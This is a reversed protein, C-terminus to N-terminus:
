LAFMHTAFLIISLRTRRIIQRHPHEPSVLALVKLGNCSVLHHPSIYSFALALAVLYQLSPELGIFDFPVLFHGGGFNLLRHLSLYDVFIEFTM